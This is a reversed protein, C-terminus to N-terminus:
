QELILVCSVQYSFADTNLVYNYGVRLLALVPPSVILEKLQEYSGLQQKTLEFYKPTYNDLNRNLPADIGAFSPVFQLYVNCQVVLSRLVTKTTPALFTQVAERNQLRGLTQWTPLHPWSLREVRPLLLVKESSAYSTTDVM